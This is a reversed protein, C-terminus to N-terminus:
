FTVITYSLLLEIAIFTFYISLCSSFVYERYHSTHFKVIKTCGEKTMMVIYKTQKILAQLLLSFYKQFFCSLFQSFFESLIGGGGVYLDFTLPMSLDLIYVVHRM